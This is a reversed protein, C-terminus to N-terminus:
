VLDDGLAFSDLTIQDLLSDGFLVDQSFCLRSRCFFVELIGIFQDSFVVTRIEEINNEAGGIVMNESGSHEGILEADSNFADAALGFAIVPDISEYSFENSGYDLFLPRM